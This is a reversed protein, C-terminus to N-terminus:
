HGRRRRKGGRADWDELLRSEDRASRASTAAASPPRGRPLGIPLATGVAPSCSYTSEATNRTGIVLNRPLRTWPRQWPAVGAELQKIIQETVTQYVSSHQPLIRAAQM